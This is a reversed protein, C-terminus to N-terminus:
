CCSKLLMEIQAKYMDKVDQLDLKLEDTEEVKEGYMQLLAQYQVDMEKYKQLLDPYDAAEESLKENVTTLNVLERALAERTRELERIDSQLQKIEGDQLKLQFELSEMVSSAGVDRLAEYLSQKNSLGHSSSISVNDGNEDEFSSNFNSIRSISNIHQNPSPTYQERGNSNNALLEDKYNLQDQILILKKGM